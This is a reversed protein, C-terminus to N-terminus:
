EDQGGHSMPSLILSSPKCRNSFTVPARACQAGCNIRMLSDQLPPVGQKRAQVTSGGSTCVEPDLSAAEAVGSGIFTGALLGLLARRGLGAESVMSERTQQGGHKVELRTSVQVTLPGILDSTLGM